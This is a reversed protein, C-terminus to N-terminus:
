VEELSPIEGKSPITKKGFAVLLCVASLIVLITWFFIPTTDGNGVALSNGLPPAALNGIGMLSIVFGTAIGAYEIGIHSIENVVYALIVAIFGDRVSGAMMMGVWVGTGNAFTLIGIGAASWLAAGILILRKAHMSRDSLFTFPLVVIMSALNYVALVGGADAVQWGIDQLHLPMYGTIGQAGGNLAMNALALLWITRSKVLHGMTEKFSILKPAPKIPETSTPATRSFLWPIAFLISIVGYFIFVNRWGGLAPSLFTASVLSGVFFGSAMGLNMIGNAFSQRNAPFWIVVNKFNAVIVLPGFFGCLFVETLLLPYNPMWGRGAGTLGVLLCNVILIHKPSFRDSLRGALLSTIIMPFSVLGWLLGAQVLNLHLDASIEPLLVSLAIMPMAIVVANTVAGLIMIYWKYNKNKPKNM